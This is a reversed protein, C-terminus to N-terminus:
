TAPPLPAVERFVGPSIRIAQSRRPRSGSGSTPALLSEALTSLVATWLPWWSYWWENTNVASPLQHTTWCPM